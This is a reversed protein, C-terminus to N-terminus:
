KLGKLKMIKSNIKEIKELKNEINANKMAELMGEYYKIKLMKIAQLFTDENKYIEVSEDFDLERLTSEDEENKAGYVVAGYEKKHVRFYSKECLEVLIRKLNSFSMASKLISLELYDKNKFKIEPKSEKKAYRYNLRFNDLNLVESVVGEYSMAMVKPLSRLFESIEDYAKQKQIPSTIDYKKSIMKIYFQGLEMGNDFLEKLRDIKREKVMDAPDEGNEIIVVSGEVGNQVLLASSKIAANIGANDGDFSLIVKIDGRKILPIHKQTLATGLVAVANTFGAKHLMIVDMYGEVIIMQKKEYISTKAKDYGYLLTSKDFIKSQPSNVYKAPNDKALTRGGFGVLNGAHNRIPFTVRSIFSAYLGNQNQKIIGVDLADNQDIEENQLLRITSSSDPAFGVEFKEIMADNLGRDYLYNLAFKNQFILSRYYANVIDLIKKDPKKIDNQTKIYNLAFNSISAIKEVAEPYSLKEYDMVFKIADGGAGCSFCHFLGKDSSISMSPNKDDHFPCLCTCNHGVRKLPIYHGIIDAIDIRLKLQEISNPDIMSFNYM